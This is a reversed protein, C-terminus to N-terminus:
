IVIVGIYLQFNVRKDQKIQVINEKERLTDKDQAAMAVYVEGISNELSHTKDDSKEIALKGAEIMEPTVAAEVEEKSAGPNEGAAADADQGLRDEAVGKIGRADVSSGRTTKM